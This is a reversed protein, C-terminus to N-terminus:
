NLLNNMIEGVDNSDQEKLKGVSRPSIGLQEIGRQVAVQTELMTKILPNKELIGFRNRVMLGQKKLEKQVQELLELNSQLLGIQLEWEANVQGYKKTLFARVSEITESIKNKAM